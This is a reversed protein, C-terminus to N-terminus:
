NDEFLFKAYPGTASRIEASSLRPVDWITEDRYRARMALFNSRAIAYRWHSKGDETQAEILLLAEPDTAQAYAFLGGDIVGVSESDYRFLPQSLLRLQSVTEDKETMEFAFRKALSRMQVLRQTPTRGPIPADAINKWTIGPSSTKWDKQGDRSAVIGGTSLSQFEQSNHTHPRYWKYISAIVMPRGELTWVYVAGYIEGVLPNTWNLVSEAQLEATKGDSSIQYEGAIQDALEAFAAASDSEQASIRHFCVFSILLPAAILLCQRM